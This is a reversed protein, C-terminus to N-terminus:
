RRCDNQNFYVAADKDQFSEYMLLIDRLNFLLM